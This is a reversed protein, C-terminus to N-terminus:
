IQTCNWKLFLSMQTPTIKNTKIGSKKQKTKGTNQFSWSGHMYQSQWIYKKIEIVLIDVNKSVFLLSNVYHSALWQDTHGEPCPLFMSMTTKSVLLIFKIMTLSQMVAKTLSRWGHKGSETVTVM